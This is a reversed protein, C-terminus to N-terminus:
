RSTRTGSTASVLAISAGNEIAHSAHPRSLRRESPSQKTSGTLVGLETGAALIQGRWRGLILGIVDEAPTGM